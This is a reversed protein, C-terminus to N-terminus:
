GGLIFYYRARGEARNGHYFSIFVKRKPRTFFPNQLTLNGHLSM